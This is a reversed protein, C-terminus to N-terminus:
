LIVIEIKLLPRVGIFLDSKTNNGIGMREAIIKLVIKKDSITMYYQEYNADGPFELLNLYEIM